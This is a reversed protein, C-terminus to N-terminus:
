SQWTRHSQHRVLHALAHNIVRLEISQVGAEAETPVQSRINRDSDRGRREHDRRVMGMQIAPGTIIGTERIVLIGAVIVSRVTGRRIMIVSM